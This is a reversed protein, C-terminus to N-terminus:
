TDNPKRRLVVDVGDPGIFVAACEDGPTYPITVERTPKLTTPEGPKPPDWDAYVAEFVHAEDDTM